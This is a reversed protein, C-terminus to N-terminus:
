EGGWGKNEWWSWTEPWRLLCAPQCTPGSRLSVMFLWTYHVPKAPKIASGFSFERDSVVKCFGNWYQWHHSTWREIHQECDCIKNEILRTDNHTQMMPVSQGISINDGPSKTQYCTLFIHLKAQVSEKKTPIITPFHPTTELVHLTNRHTMFFKMEKFGLLAKNWCINPTQRLFVSPDNFISHIVTM